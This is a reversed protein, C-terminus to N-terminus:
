HRKNPSSGRATGGDGGVVGDFGAAAGAGLGFELLPSPPWCAAALLDTQNRTARSVL